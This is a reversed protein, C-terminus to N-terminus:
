LPLTAGMLRLVLRLANNLGNDTIKLHFPFEYLTNGSQVFLLQLVFLLISIKILGKLLKYTRQGAGGIIGIVINLAILACLVFPSSSIFCAACVVFAYLLKTVPNMKHFVSTGPIYSLLGNM